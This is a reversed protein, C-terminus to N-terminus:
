NFRFSNDIREVMLSILEEQDTNPVYVVSSMSELESLVTSTTQYVKILYSYM